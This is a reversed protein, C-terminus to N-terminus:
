RTTKAGNAKPTHITLVGDDLAATVAELPAGGVGYELADDEGTM